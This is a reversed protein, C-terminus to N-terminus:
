LLTLVTAAVTELDRAPMVLAGPYGQWQPPTAGTDLIIHHACGAAHALRSPFSDVTVVVKAQRVLQAAFLLARDYYCPLQPLHLRPNTGGGLIAVTSHALLMGALSLTQEVTLARERATTFPALVVDYTPVPVANGDYDKIRPRPVEAPITLGCWGFLHQIPSIMKPYHRYGIAAAVGLTYVPMERMAFQPEVHGADVVNEPLDAIELVARNHMAVYLRDYEEALACLAPLAMLADGPLEDRCIALAESM